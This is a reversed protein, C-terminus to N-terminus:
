LRHSQVNSDVFFKERVEPDLCCLVIRSGKMQLKRKFLALEAISAANFVTVGTFDFLVRSDKALVEALQSLDERLEAITSQDFAPSDRFVVQTTNESCTVALHKLNWSEVATSKTTTKHSDPNLANAAEDHLEYM